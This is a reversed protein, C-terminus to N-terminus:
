IPGGRHTVLGAQRGGQDQLSKIEMVTVLVKVVLFGKSGTKGRLPPIPNFCMQSRWDPTWEGWSAGSDSGALHSGQRSMQNKFLRVEFERKFISTM